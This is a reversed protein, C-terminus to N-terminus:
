LQNKEVTVYDDLVAQLLHKANDPNSNQIERIVYERGKYQVLDGVKLM